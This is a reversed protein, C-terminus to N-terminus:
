LNETELYVGSERYQLVRYLIGLRELIVLAGYIYAGYYLGWSLFIGLDFLINIYLLIGKNEENLLKIDLTNLSLTVIISIIWVIILIVHIIDLALGKLYFPTLIIFIDILVSIVWKIHKSKM